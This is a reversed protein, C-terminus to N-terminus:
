STDGLMVSFDVTFQSHLDGPKFGFNLPQLKFQDSVPSVMLLLMTRLDFIVSASGIM